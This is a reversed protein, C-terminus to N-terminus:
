PSPGPGVTTFPKRPGLRLAAREGNRRTWFYLCESDATVHDVAMGALAFIKEAAGGATTTRWIENNETWYVHTGDSALSTMVGRGGVLLTANTANSPIRWIGWTSGAEKAAAYVTEGSVALIANAPAGGIPTTVPTAPIPDARTIGSSTAIFYYDDAAVVSSATATALSKYATVPTREQVGGTAGAVALRDQGSSALAVVRKMGSPASMVNGGTWLMATGVTDGYAVLATNGGVGLAFPVDINPVFDYISDSGPGKKTVRMVHAEVPM